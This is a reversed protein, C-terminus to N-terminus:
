ADQRIVKRKLLAAIWDRIKAASRVRFTAQHQACCATSLTSTETPDCGMVLADLSRELAETRHGALVNMLLSVFSCSTM